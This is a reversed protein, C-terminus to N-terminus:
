MALYADWPHSLLEKTNVHGKSFVLDWLVTKIDQHDLPSGVLNLVEWCQSVLVLIGVWGGPTPPRPQPSLSLHCELQRVGQQVRVSSNM